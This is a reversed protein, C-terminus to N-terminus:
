KNVSEFVRCIKMCQPCLTEQMSVGPFGSSIVDASRSFSSIHNWKTRDPTARKTSGRARTEYRKPLALALGYELASRLTGSSIGTRPLWGARSTLWLGTPLSGNSEALSASGRATNLPDVELPLSPLPPALGLYKPRSGGGRFTDSIMLSHQHKAACLSDLIHSILHPYDHSSTLIANILHQRESTVAIKLRWNGCLSTQWEPLDNIARWDAGCIWAKRKVITRTMPRNLHKYTSPIHLLM